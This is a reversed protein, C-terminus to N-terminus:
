NFIMIIMGSSFIFWSNLNCFFLHILFYKILSVSPFSNIPLFCLLMFFNTSNQIMTTVQNITIELLIQHTEIRAKAEKTTIGIPIVLEAIHNFIQTNVAPLLLYLDIFLFFFFFCSIIINKAFELNFLM